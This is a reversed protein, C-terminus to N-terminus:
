LAWTQPSKRWEALIPLDSEKIYGNEVAVEILTEYNSLPHLPINETAFKKEMSPFQYSFNAMTFLVNADNAKLTKVANLTSGGTSLLDEFVGVRQGSLLVGEIVNELGHSKTSERVYIFPVRLEHAILAGMPIGGTAIGAMADLHPYQTQILEVAFKLVFERINPYSLMKRNDCYIPSRWGSAWTYFDPLMKLTVAKIELLFDAYVRANGKNYAIQNIKNM